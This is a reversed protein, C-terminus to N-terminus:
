QTLFLLNKDRVVCQEKGTKQALLADILVLTTLRQQGDVVHFSNPRHSIPTCIVTGCFHSAGTGLRGLRELDDFLDKRHEKRWDYSRQYDPVELVAPTGKGGMEFLGKFNLYRAGPIDETM